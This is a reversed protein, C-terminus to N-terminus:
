IRDLVERRKREFEVDTLHGRTRLKTLGNIEGLLDLLPTDDRGFTWRRSELEFEASRSDWAKVFYIAKVSAYPIGFVEIEDLAPSILPLIVGHSRREPTQSVLGKLVEGDWFHIAVKDLRAGNADGDFDRREILISKVSSFPVIAGRNNSGSVTVTLEFDPTDMDLQEVEGELIENDRFRVLVIEGAAREALQQASM